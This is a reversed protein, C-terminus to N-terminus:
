GATRPEYRNEVPYVTAYEPTWVPPKYKDPKRPDHLYGLHNVYREVSEEKHLAILLDKTAAVDNLARHAGDLKICYRECMNELKHPYFHRDRSITLTDIFPNSFSRGALRMLSFHLFALDFAANHAVLLSNGVIRNLIQFSTKEDLGMHMVRSSIGTLETIKEPLEDIEHQFVITSFESIVHGNCVRIAAMEIVRDNQPDLGSTEFDFVTFDSLM